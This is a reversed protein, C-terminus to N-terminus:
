GSVMGETHRWWWQGTLQQANSSIIM